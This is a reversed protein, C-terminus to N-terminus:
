TKEGLGLEIKLIKEIRIFDVYKIEVLRINNNKCYQKKINDHKKIQSLGDKYKAYGIYHQQGQYEILINHKPLYFDFPLSNTDKCDNFRKEKEYIIDYSELFLRISEEGKSLQCKPCNTKGATRNNIKAKYSHGKKCIWWVIKKSGFTVNYFNETNKEFDWEEKLQPFKTSLKKNGCNKGCSKYNDAILICAQIILKNGCSCECEIISGGYKKPTIKVVILSGFIDNVKPENCRGCSKREGSFIHGLTSTFERKCFCLIRVPFNVGKYDDILKMNLVDLRKIVEEKSLPRFKGM